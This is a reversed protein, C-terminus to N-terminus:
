SQMKSQDASMQAMKMAFDEVSTPSAEQQKDVCDEPHVIEMIKWDEELLKREADPILSMFFDYDERLAAITHTTSVILFDYGDNPNVHLKVM